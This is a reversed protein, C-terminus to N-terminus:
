HSSKEFSSYEQNKAYEAAFHLAARVHDLTLQPYYDKGVIDEPKVGGELLELVIYVPIRTGQFCPKGHCVEPNVSLYKQLLEDM